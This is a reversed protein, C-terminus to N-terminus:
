RKLAKLCKNARSIFGPSGYPLQDEIVAILENRLDPLEKTLNTLVTMSFARVAIPEHVDQLYNFSLTAVKGQYTKPISIFQLLRVVNRKVAAHAGPKEAAGLIKGLHPRILAPHAKVCESLSWAARQTVRYPGALFVRVLDAFRNSDNGV